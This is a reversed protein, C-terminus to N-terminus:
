RVMVKSANALDRCVWDVTRIREEGNNFVHWVCQQINSPKSVFEMLRHMKAKHENNKGVFGHAIAWDGDEQARNQVLATLEELPVDAVLKAYDGERGHYEGPFWIISEKQIDTM